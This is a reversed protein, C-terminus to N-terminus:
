WMCLLLLWGRGGATAADFYAKYVRLAVVGACMEDVTILVRQCQIGYSIDLMYPFVTNVVHMDLAAM